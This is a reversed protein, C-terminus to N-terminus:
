NKHKKAILCKYSKYNKVLVLFRYMYKFSILNDIFGDM